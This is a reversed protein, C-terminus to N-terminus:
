SIPLLNPSTANKRPTHHWNKRPFMPTKGLKQPRKALISPKL